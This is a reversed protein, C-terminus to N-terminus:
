TNHNTCPLGAEGGRAEDFTGQRIVRGNEGDKRM